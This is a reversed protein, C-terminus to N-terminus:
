RPWSSWDEIESIFSSPQQPQWTNKLFNNQAECSAGLINKMDSKHSPKRFHLSFFAGYLHLPPNPLSDVNIAKVTLCVPLVCRGSSFVRGPSTGVWETQCSLKSNESSKLVSFTRDAHYMWYMRCTGLHQGNVLGQVMGLLMWSTLLVLQQFLLTTLYKGSLSPLRLIFWSHHPILNDLVPVM